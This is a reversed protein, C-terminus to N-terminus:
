GLKKQYIKVSLVYSVLLVAATLAAGVALVFGTSLQLLREIDVGTFLLILYIGFFIAIIVLYLIASTNLSATFSALLNLATMCIAIFLGAACISLYTSFPFDGHLFYRVVSFIVLELAYLIHMSFASLFRSLVLEKHSFPLTLNLSGANCNSDLEKLTTAMGSSSVPVVLLCFTFVSISNKIGIIFLIFFFFELIWTAKHTRRLFALLDKYVLGSM